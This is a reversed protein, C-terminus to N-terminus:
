AGASIEGAPALTAEHKSQSVQKAQRIRAIASVVAAIRGPQSEHGVLYAAIAAPTPNEFIVSLQLETNFIKRLRVVVRLGSLSNGGLDFFNEQASVTPVDLVGAVVEAILSEVPTEPLAPAPTKEVKILSALLAARDTKGNATLPMAPLVNVVAPVLFRPLNQQLWDTLANSEVASNEACVAFAALSRADGHGVPLVVGEVIGPHRLMQAVIEGTEVRVGRIKVQHDNRGLFDLGDGDSRWRVIDGTRYLIDGPVFPSPLFREDTLDARGLYGAAVGPGGLFLEGPTGHPVLGMGRSLVYARTNAIPLGVPVPSAIATGANLRLATAFTSCETPGYANIMELDPYLDLVRRALKSSLVDGAILLHQLGAFAEPMEEAIAHFLGTALLAVTVHNGTIAVGISELRSLADDALVLTAGNALAGWIDFNSLDFSLTNAHLVVDNPEIAIYDTEVVLRAIGQHPILVGKPEGTSGSTFLVCAVDAPKVIPREAIASARGQKVLQEVTACARDPDAFPLEARDTLILKTDALRTLARLREAPQDADLPLYAGGRLLVALLAAIMDPARSLSIAVVSGSEVGNIALGAAIETARAALETYTVNQDRWRIATADPRKSVQQLVLEHVLSESLPQTYGSRPGCLAEVGKHDVLPLAWIDTAPKTLGVSLISRLAILFEKASNEDFIDLAYDLRLRWGSGLRTVALMIDFFVTETNEGLSFDIELNGYSGTNALLSGDQISLVAQVLPHRGPNRQPKVADVLWEFRVTEEALISVADQASARVLDRFSQPIEYKTRTVAINAFLGVTNEHEPLPRGATAVGCLLDSSGTYQALTTVYAAHFLAFPTCGEATCFAKLNENIEQELDIQCSAGKRLTDPARMQVGPFELVTNAGELRQAARATAAIAASNTPKTPTQVAFDAYHASPAPLVPIEGVSRASYSQVLDRLFVQLSEGDSATHHVVISLAHNQNSTRFLRARFPPANFRDIPQQTFTRIAADLDVANPSLPVIKIDRLSSLKQVTEEGRSTLFAQLMPHRAVTDHVCTMLLEADLEGILRVVMAVNLASPADSITEIVLLSQQGVSLPWELPGASTTVSSFTEPDDSPTMVENETEALIARVTRGKLIAGVSLTNDTAERFRATAKLALLSYGGLQYFDDELGVQPLGFLDAFIGCLAQQDSTEPPVYNTLRVPTACNEMLAQTDVKGNPTLPIIPVQVLRSPVMYDPLNRELTTCLATVDIRTSRSKALRSAKAFRSVSSLALNEDVGFDVLAAVEDVGWSAVTLLKEACSEVSGIIGQDMMRGLAYDLIQELDASDVHPADGTEKFYQERLSAHDRLYDRLVPAAVARADEDTDGVYCHLMLAVKPRPQGHKAAAKRLHAINARLEVPNQNNLATLVHCGLRGATEFTKPDATATMWLPLPGKAPLPRIRTATDVGAGNSLMVTGGSWLSRLYGVGEAVLEKRKQYVSPALVFDDVLWGSALALEARGGSLADIVAWDEALRVPHHLPLVVSGARLKIRQTIAALAACLVAPNPFAGAVKTFHREPTWIANLGEDDAKRAVAQYFGYIGEGSEAQTEGFFFVGCDPGAGAGSQGTVFATLATEAHQDTSAVVVADKVGPQSRLHEEIEVPEVRYGRIKLQRDLRGAFDYSGDHRIRVLDGTRFEREKLQDSAVVGAAPDLYGDCLQSGGIVLEGVELRTVPLYDPRVVKPRVGPIPRGIPVRAMRATDQDCCHWFVAQPTETAGYFVVGPAASVMQCIEIDAPRVVDGGFFVHRLDPLSTDEQGFALRAMGPTLHSVSVAAGALWDAIRGEDIVDQSPIVLTGGITLPLCIDRLSPDHGLGSLLSVRDQDSLNFENAQWQLFRALPAHGSVVAKPHGTTGSTFQVVAPHEYPISQRLLGAQADAFWGEPDGENPLPLCEISALPEFLEVEEPRLILKPKFIEAMSAIRQVPFRADWVAAVAGAKWIALLALPLRHDRQALIAVHDSSGVGKAQLMWSIRDTIQDLVAYSVSHEGHEVAVHGGRLKSHEYLRELVLPAKNRTAPTSVDQWLDAVPIEMQAEPDVGRLIEAYRSLLAQATEPLYLAADYVLELILVDHAGKRVYFALDIRSFLNALPERQATLGTVKLVEGRWPIYNFSVRFKRRPVGARVKERACNRLQGNVHLLNDALPIAPDIQVTVPVMSAFLGVTDRLKRGSRNAIAVGVPLESSGAWRGILDALSAFMVATRTVGGLRAARDIGIGVEAPLEITLSRPAAVHNSARPFDTPLDPAENGTDHAALNYDQDQELTTQWEDYSMDKVTQRINGTEYAEAFHRLLIGLSWGDSVLHHVSLMLFHYHPAVRVIAFRALTAGIVDFSRQSLAEAMQRAAAEAEAMNLKSLDTISIDPRVSAAITRSWGTRNRHFSARLMDHRRVLAEIAQKAREIDFHGSIRLCETLSLNADAGLIEIASLLEVQAASPQDHGQNMPVADHTM